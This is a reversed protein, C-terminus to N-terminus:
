NASEEGGLSDPKRDTQLEFWLIGETPLMLTKM